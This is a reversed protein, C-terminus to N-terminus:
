DGNFFKDNWRLPSVLLFIVVLVVIVWPDDIITLIAGTLMLGWLVTALIKM